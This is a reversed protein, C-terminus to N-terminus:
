FVQGELGQGLGGNAKKRFQNANQQFYHPSVKSKRDLGSYLSGSQASLHSPESGLTFNAKKLNVTDVYEQHNVIMGNLEIPQETSTKKIAFPNGKQEAAEQIKNIEGPTLMTITDTRHERKLLTDLKLM